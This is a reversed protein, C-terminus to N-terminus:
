LEDHLVAPELHDTFLEVHHHHHVQYHATVDFVYETLPAAGVTGDPYYVEFSEEKSTVLVLYVAAKMREEVLSDKEHRTDHIYKYSVYLRFHNIIDYIDANSISHYAHAYDTGALRWDNATNGAVGLPSNGSYILALFMYQAFIRHFLAETANGEFSHFVAATRHIRPSVYCLRLAFEVARKATEPAHRMQTEVRSRLSSGMCHQHGFFTTSPFEARLRIFQPLLTACNESSQLDICTRITEVLAFLDSLYREDSDSLSEDKGLLYYEGFPSTEAAKLMQSLLREDDEEEDDMDGPYGLGYLQIVEEEQELEEWFSFPARNELYKEDSLPWSLLLQPPFQGFFATEQELYRDMEDGRMTPVTSVALAILLALAYFHSLQPMVPLNSPVTGGSIVVKLTIM